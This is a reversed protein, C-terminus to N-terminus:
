SSFDQLFCLSDCCSSSSCEVSSACSNVLARPSTARAVDYHLQGPESRLQFVMRNTVQILHSYRASFQPIVDMSNGEGPCRVAVGFVQPGDTYNGKGHLAGNAM